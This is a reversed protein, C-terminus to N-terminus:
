PQIEWITISSAAVGGMLRTGGSGKGNFAFTEATQPGGRLKFTTSSTTGAPMFHTFTTTAPRDNPSSSSAAALAEGTSDQFLGYTVQANDTANSGIGTCQILLNNGADTPTIDLEMLAVGQTLLPPNDDWDMVTTTTILDGSMLNVVQIVDGVTNIDAIDNSMIVITNSMLNVDSSLIVVTESIANVDTSLIQTLETLDNVDTSLIVVTGSILAIDNSMIVVTESIAGVDRSIIEVKETLDSMDTSIISIDQSMSWMIADITIIDNSLKEGWDRSNFEPVILAYNTTVFDAGYAVACILVILIVSLIRKFM